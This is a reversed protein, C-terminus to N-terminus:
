VCSACVCVKSHAWGMRDCLQLTDQSGVALLDGNPSWAVATVAYDFPDGQYLLRGYTDWVQTHTRTNTCKYANTHVHPHVHAPMQADTLSQPCLSCVCLQLFDFAPVSVKYKCDEGGSVVMGSIPSWDVQTRSKTCTHTHTHSQTCTHTPMHPHTQSCLVCQHKLLGQHAKACVDVCVCVCGM